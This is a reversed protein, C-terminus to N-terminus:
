EKVQELKEKIHSLASELHDHQILIYDTVFTSFYIVALKDSHSLLSGTLKSVVGIQAEDFGLGESTHIMVPVFQLQEASETVATSEIEDEGLSLMEFVQENGVIINEDEFSALAFFDGINKYEFWLTNLLDKIHFQYQKSSLRCMFLKTDLTTLEDAEADYSDDNESPKKRLFMSPPVLEEEKVSQDSNEVKKQILEVAKEFNEEEVLLLDHSWLSHYFISINNSSLISAYRYISRATSKELLAKSSNNAYDSANEHNVVSKILIGRWTSGQELMIADMNLQYSQIIEKYRKVEELSSEDLIISIEDATEIFSIFRDPSDLKVFLTKLLAKSYFHFQKRQISILFLNMPLIKFTDVTM